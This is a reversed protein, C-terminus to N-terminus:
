SITTTDHSGPNNGNPQESVNVAVKPTSCSNLKAKRTTFAPFLAPFIHM